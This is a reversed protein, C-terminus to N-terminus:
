RSLVGQFNFEVQRVISSIVSFTQGTGIPFNPADPEIVYLGPALRARFTGQADPTVRFFQDRSTTSIKLAGTYPRTACTSAPATVSCIPTFSVRGSIGSLMTDGSQPMTRIDPPAPLDPLPRRYDGPMPFPEIPIRRTPRAPVRPTRTAPTIQTPRVPRRPTRIVPRRPLPVPPVAPPAIVSSPAAPSEPAPLPAQAILWDEKAQTVIPFLASSLVIGSMGSIIACLRILGFMAGKRASSM